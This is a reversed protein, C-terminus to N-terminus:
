VTSIAAASAAPSCSTALTHSRMRASSCAIASHSLTWVGSTTCLYRALLSASTCAFRYLRGVPIPISLPDSFGAKPPHRCGSPIDGCLFLAGPHSRKSTPTEFKGGPRPCGQGKSPTSAMRKRAVPLLNHRLLRPSPTFKKARPEARKKVEARARCAATALLKTTARLAGVFSRM